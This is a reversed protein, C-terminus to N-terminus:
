SQGGRDLAVLAEGQLPGAFEMSDELISHEWEEVFMPHQLEGEFFALDASPASTQQQETYLSSPNEFSIPKVMQPQEPEYKKWWSRVRRWLFSLRTFLRVARAPFNWRSVKKDLMSSRNILLRVDKAGADKLLDLSDTIENSPTIKQQFVLLTTDFIPSLVVPDLTQSQKVPPGEALIIDYLKRLSHLNDRLYQYKESENTNFVLRTINPLSTKVFYLPASTDLRISVIDSSQQQLEIVLVNQALFKAMARALHRLILTKGEGHTTSTFLVSTGQKEQASQVLRNATRLIEVPVDVDPLESASFIPREGSVSVAAVSM